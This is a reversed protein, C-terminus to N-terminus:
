YALPAAPKVRMRQHADAPLKIVTRLLHHRRAWASIHWALCRCETFQSSLRYPTSSTAGMRQSATFQCQYQRIQRLHHSRECASIHWALYKGVTARERLPDM